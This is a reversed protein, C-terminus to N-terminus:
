PRKPCEHPDYYKGQEDMFRYQREPTLFTNFTRAVINGEADRVWFKLDDRGDGNIDRVSLDLGQSILREDILCITSEQGHLQKFRFLRSNGVQNGGLSSKMSGEEMM